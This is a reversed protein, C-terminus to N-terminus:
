GDIRIATADLISLCGGNSCSGDDKLTVLNGGTVHIWLAMTRGIGDSPSLEAGEMHSEQLRLNPCGEGEFEVRIALTGKVHDVSAQNVGTGHFEVLMPFQHGANAVQKQFTGFLGQRGM